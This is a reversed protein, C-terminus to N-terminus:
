EHYGTSACDERAGSRILEILNFTKEQACMLQLKLTTMKKSSSLRFSSVLAQMNM